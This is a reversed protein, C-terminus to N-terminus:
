PFFRGNKVFPKLRYTWSVPQNDPSISDNETVNEYDGPETGSYNGDPNINLTSNLVMAEANGRLLISTSPNGWGWNYGYTLGQNTNIGTKNIPTNFKLSIAEQEFRKIWNYYGYTHYLMLYSMSSLFAISAFALYINNSKDSKVKLWEPWFRITSAISLVYLLLFCCLARYAYSLYGYSINNHDWRFTYILYLCALGITFATIWSGLRQFHNSILASTLAPILILYLLHIETLASLNATSTGNYARELFVSKAGIYISFLFAFCSFILFIRVFLSDFSIKVLRIVSLISLFLGLFLTAEYSHTLLISTIFLFIALLANINQRLLIACCFATMGYATSFEGAAFFNSRLYSVSFAILFFWFFHNRYHLALAGLWFLIPIGIFGFNHLRILLNLDITGFRIAAAVPLQVLRQVFERHSDFIYFGGRPLMEILWYSGDAYLGRLSYVGFLCILVILGFSYIKFISELSKPMNM